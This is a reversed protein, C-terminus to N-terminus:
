GSGFLKTHSSFRVTSRAWVQYEKSFKGTYSGNVLNKNFLNVIFKEGLVRESKKSIITMKRGFYLQGLEIDNPGM